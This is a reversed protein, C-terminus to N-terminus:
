PCGEQWKNIFCLFDFFDVAGDNNCNSYIDEQDFHSMYCLFDLVDLTGKGTGRDCDAYCFPVIEAWWTEFVGQPNHGGGSIYRGDRSIVDVRWLNWAAVETLGYDNILIDEVSQMGDLPNWIIAVGLFQAFNSWGVAVFGDEHAGFGGEELSFSSGTHSPSLTGLVILGHHETWRAAEAIGPDAFGFATLGDSSSARFGSLNDGGPLDPIFMFGTQAHWLTAVAGGGTSASGVARQADDSMDRMTVISFVQPPDPQIITVGEGERWLFAAHQAPTKETVLEGIAVTGDWNPAITVPSWGAPFGDMVVPQQGPDTWMVPLAPVILDGAWGFLRKGDGSMSYVEGSGEALTPLMEFGGAKTWKFPRFGSVGYVTGSTTMVAERFAGNGPWPGPPAFGMPKFQQAHIAPAAIGVAGAFNIIIITTSKMM